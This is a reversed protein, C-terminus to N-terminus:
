KHPYQIKLWFIFAHGLLGSFEEVNFIPSCM